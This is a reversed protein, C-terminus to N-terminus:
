DGMVPSRHYKPKPSEPSEEKAKNENRIREGEERIVRYRQQLQSPTLTTSEESDLYRWYELDPSPLAEYRPCDSLHRKRRTTGPSDLEGDPIGPATGDVYRQINRRNMKLKEPRFFPTFSPAESPAVDDAVCAWDPSLPLNRIGAARAAERTASYDREISEIAEMM